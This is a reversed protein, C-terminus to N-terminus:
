QTLTTLKERAFITRKILRAKNDEPLLKLAQVKDNFATTAQLMQELWQKMRPKNIRATKCFNLIAEPLDIPLDRNDPMTGYGGLECSFMADHIAYARMPTPDYVPSFERIGDREIISLNELHLDGNGTLLSFIIRKFLHEIGKDADTCLVVASGLIALAIKDYSYDYHHQLKVGGSALISYITEVPLPAQNRDRDFREIAIAPMDNFSTLWYRPVDFGAQKATDLALAEIETIGPYSATREFKLVVDTLGPTRTKTPPAITDNWGSQPISLLLKPIAGGVSPTPGIVDIFYNIDDNVWNIFQKLTYSMRETVPALEVNLARGYWALAAVDDMFVDLHGIGGHSSVKLIEWDLESGSLGTKGQSALYKIAISRQFNGTEAPPILSQISPFLHFQNNRDFEITTNAFAAPPYALSLGPLGSEIYAADYTFRSQTPTVYLRGMKHPSGGTRTWVVAENDTAM